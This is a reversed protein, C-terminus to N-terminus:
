LRPLAAGRGGASGPVGCVGSTGALRSARAAAGAGICEGPGAAAAAAPLDGFPASETGTGGTAGARVYVVATCSVSGTSDTYYTGSGLTTEDVGACVDTGDLEVCQLVDEGEDGGCAVFVAAVCLTTFVIRMKKVNRSEWGTSLM